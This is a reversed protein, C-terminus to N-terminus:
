DRPLGTMASASAAPDVYYNSLSIQQLVWNSLGYDHKECLLPIIGKMTSRALSFLFRPFFVVRYFDEADAHHLFYCDEFAGRAFAKVLSNYTMLTAGRADAYSSRMIAILSPSDIELLSADFRFSALRVRIRRGLEVMRPAYIWEPYHDILASHLLREVARLMGSEIM